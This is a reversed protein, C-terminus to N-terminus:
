YSDRLVATAYFSETSSAVGVGEQLTLEVKVGESRATAIRRFILTRIASEGTLAGVSVGNEKLTLLGNVILFEVTRPAGDLTTSNLVLVGPHSGLVSGGLAVSEADRVERTIRELAIAADTELVQKARLAGYSRISIIITQAVVVLCLSLIIVYFM